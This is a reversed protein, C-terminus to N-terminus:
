HTQDLVSDAAVLGKDSDSVLTVDIQNIEPITRIFTLLYNVTSIWNSTSLYIYM